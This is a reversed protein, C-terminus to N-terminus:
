IGTNFAGNNQFIVPSNPFQMESLEKITRFARHQRDLMVKQPARTQLFSVIQGQVFKGSKDMQVRLLPAEQAKGSISIGRGTLFNGLSYAIVRDKYVELARPVHPGHMIVLDAGADVALRAFSISDGRNEGLFIENGEPIITADKGESGAHVSVIVINNENKLKKIETLTSAGVTISRRGTYYDAAILAINIGDAEFRAVEGAKSSYQIDAHALTEKTSRVGASGFDNIHNNALSMVNFKAEQLHSVYHLPTQFLWRNPGPRKGDAQPDGEFFTGEFNGFRVDSAEIWPIAEKFMDIGDNQPLYNEPYTTGMMIDGVATVSIFDKAHAFTSLAIVHFILFLRKM